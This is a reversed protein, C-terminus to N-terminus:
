TIERIEFSPQHRHVGSATASRDSLPISRVEGHRRVPCQLLRPERHLTTGHRSAQHLLPRRCLDLELQLYGRNRLVTGYRRDARGSRRRASAARFTASVIGVRGTRCRRDDAVFAGASRRLDEKELYPWNEIKAFSARDGKRRREDWLNRYYPVRTAARHLIRLRLAAM